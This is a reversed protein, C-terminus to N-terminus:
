SGMVIRVLDATNEARLKRIVRTRHVEVTRPSIKLEGAISKNSRGTVVLSLVERERPTLSSFGYLEVKRAGEHITSVVINRKLDERVLRLLYEIDIPQSVVDIAGFKMALVAADVDGPAPLGVVPIGTMERKIRRLLPIGSEQDLTLSLLIVDPTRRESIVLFQEPNIFFSTQFGEIRFAVSLEECLRLDSSVIYVHKSALLRPPINDITDM